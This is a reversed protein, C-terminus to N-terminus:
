LNNDPSTEYFDKFQRMWEPWDITWVGGAVTWPGRTNYTKYWKLAWIEKLGVKRVSGDAFLCNISGAHRNVCVLQMEAANQIDGLQETAPPHDSAYPWADVWFMDALVPMTAAGWVHPTRWASYAYSGQSRNGIWGNIGYSVLHDAIRSAHHTTSADPSPHMASPCAYLGTEKHYPWLTEIWWRGSDSTELTPFFGDNDQTSSDFISAWQQLHSRCLFDKARTRGAGGVSGLTTLLFAICLVAMAIDYGSICTHRKMTSEGYM